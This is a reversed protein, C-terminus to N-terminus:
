EKITEPDKINKMDIKLQKNEEKLSNINKKFIDIDIEVNNKYKYFDDNDKKLINNKEIQKMLIDKYKGEEILKEKIIKNSDEILKKIHNDKEYLDNAM